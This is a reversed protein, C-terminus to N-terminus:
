ISLKDFSVIFSSALFASVNTRFAYEEVLIIRFIAFVKFVVKVDSVRFFSIFFADYGEDM